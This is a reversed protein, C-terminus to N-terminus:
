ASLLLTLLLALLVNAYRWPECVGETQDIVKDIQKEITYILAYASTLLLFLTSVYLVPKSLPNM